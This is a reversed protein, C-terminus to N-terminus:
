DGLWFRRSAELGLDERTLGIDKLLRDDLQRLEQLSRARTRWLRIATAIRHIARLPALPASEARRPPQVATQPLRVAPRFQTSTTGFSSRGRRREDHRQFLSSLQYARLTREMMEAERQYPEGAIAGAIGGKNSASIRCAIARDSDRFRDLKQERGV